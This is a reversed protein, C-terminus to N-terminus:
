YDYVSLDEMWDINIRLKSTDMDYYWDTPKKYANFLDTFTDFLILNDDDDRVCVSKFKGDNDIDFPMIMPYWDGDLGRLMYLKATNNADITEITIGDLTATADHNRVYGNIKVDGKIVPVYTSENCYYKSM